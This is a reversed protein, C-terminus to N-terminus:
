WRNATGLAKVFIMMSQSSFEAPCKLRLVGPVTGPTTSLLLLHKEHHQARPLAPSLRRPRQGCRERPRRRYPRPSDRPVPDFKGPVLDTIRAKAKSSVAVMQWKSPDSPDADNIYVQYMRADEVRKWLLDVCGEFDSVRAELKM